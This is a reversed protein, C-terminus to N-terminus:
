ERRVKRAGRECYKTCCAHIALHDVAMAAKAIIPYTLIDNQKSHMYMEQGKSLSYGKHKQKASYHGVM